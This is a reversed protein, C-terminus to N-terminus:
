ILDQGTNFKLIFKYIYNKRDTLSIDKWTNQARKSNDLADNIEAITAFNRKVYISNDIPSITQLMNNSM